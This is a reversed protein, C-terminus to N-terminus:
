AMGDLAETAQRRRISSGLHRELLVGLEFPLRRPAILGLVNSLIGSAEAPVIAGDPMGPASGMRGLPRPRTSTATSWPRVVVAV